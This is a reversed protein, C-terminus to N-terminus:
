KTVEDQTTVAGSEIKTVDNGVVMELDFVGRRWSLDATVSAPIERTITKAVDDLIIRPDGPIAFSSLELLVTGGIRDRIQMRAQYGALEVPKFVRLVVSGAKFKTGNLCPIELTDANVVRVAQARTPEINTSGEVHVLPWGDPIGHATASLRVPAGPILTAQVFVCEATAWRLVDRYTSGKVIAIDTM